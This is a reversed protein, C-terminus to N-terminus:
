AVLLKTAEKKRTRKLVLHREFKAYACEVGSYHGDSWRYRAMFHAM